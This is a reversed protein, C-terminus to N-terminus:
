GSHYAMSIGNCAGLFFLFSFTWSHHGVAVATSHSDIDSGPDAKAAKASFFCGIAENIQM